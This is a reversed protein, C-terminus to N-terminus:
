FIKLPGNWLYPDMLWAYNKTPICSYFQRIKIPQDNTQFQGIMDMALLSSMHLKNKIPTMFFAM